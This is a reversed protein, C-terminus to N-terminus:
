GLVPLSDGVPHRLAPESDAIGLLDRLAAHVHGPTIRVGAADEVLTKPNVTVPFQGADTGGVVRGGQIGPGMLLMSTVSWHDKGSGDNYQPTRAFDSAVLVYLRDDIGQRRAEDVAHIVGDLLNQMPLAHNVDHNAHTDFGGMSLTASCTVGATFCAVALEAQRRLANGSDDPVAPLYEELTALENDGARAGRLLEMARRRRPLPELDIRRQLRDERFARIRDLTAAPLVASDLDDPDLLHPRAMEGIADVDPLRTVPVLGAGEDYGGNGLFALPPVVAQSAAFVAGLNPAAAAISGSWMHRRGTSHSNTGADIGNIVLLDDQFREFFAQRGAIPAVRFPGVDLIEDQDFLNIPAPDNEGARGKPDCLLTPDWGGGAHVTLVFPGEYTTSQALAGRPSWALLGAAPALKLFHRRDM